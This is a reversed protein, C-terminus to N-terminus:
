SQETMTGCRFKRDVAAYAYTNNPEDIIRISRM